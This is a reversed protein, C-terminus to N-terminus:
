AVIEALEELVVFANNELSVVVEQAAGDKGEQRYQQDDQQQEEQEALLHLGGAATGHREAFRFGAQQRTVMVLDGELVDGTNLFGLFLQPFDDIEEAIRALELLEAARDGLADQHDPRRAGALGQQGASDGPLGIHREERDGTGVEHFHEDADACGRGHCTRAPLFCAGHRIKM